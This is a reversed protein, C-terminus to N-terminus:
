PIYWGMWISLSIIFVGFYSWALMFTDEHMTWEFDNETLKFKM